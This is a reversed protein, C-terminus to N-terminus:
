GKSEARGIYIRSIRAELSRQEAKNLNLQFSKRINKSYFSFSVDVGMEIIVSCTVFRGTTIKGM